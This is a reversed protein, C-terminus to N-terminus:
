KQRNLWDTLIMLVVANFGMGTVEAERQLQEKLDAPLRITTHEREVNTM